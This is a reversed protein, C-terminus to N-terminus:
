ASGNERLSRVPLGWRRALEPAAEAATRFLLADIGMAVAGAVNVAADDIFVCAGAAAGLQALCLEYFAPEPKVMRVDCSFLAPSFDAIWGFRGDERMFTLKEPPMNSLIATRYGAQRLEGAWAIMARNVRTWGLSDEREIRAILEATPALNGAKLFRGWYEDAGLAGRDLELRDHPYLELFRKVSVGCLGAMSAVREPDQPLGLVGGFDFIVTTIRSEL